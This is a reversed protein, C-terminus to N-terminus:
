ESESVPREFHALSQIVRSRDGDSTAGRASIQVLETELKKLREIKQRIELLQEAAIREAEMNPMDTLESLEILERIAEVSLGLDRAHRIFALRDQENKSYRRQNGESRGCPALLGTQEWYRITSVNTGTAKALEGITLM